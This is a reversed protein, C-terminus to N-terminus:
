NLSRHHADVQQFAAAMIGVAAMFEARDDEDMQGIFHAIMTALIVIADAGTCGQMAEAVKEGRRDLEATSADMVNKIYEQMDLM